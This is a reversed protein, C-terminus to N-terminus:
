LGVKASRLYKRLAISQARLYPRRIRSSKWASGPECFPQFWEPRLPSTLQINPTMPMTFPSRWRSCILLRTCYMECGPM